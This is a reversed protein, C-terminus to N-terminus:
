PAPLPTRPGASVAATGIGRPDSAAEVRGATKDWVVVQMNGFIADGGTLPSSVPELHYGMLALEEATDADLAGREYFVRDPLYQHHLRPRSVIAQADGGDLYELIGLLVMTIIRSGGPTGLIALGRESQVFTPTMSSLPRKGPEIANAEAGILGYVNPVGPKASFDDMENNLLVGTGDAVFGSGFLYNISLTAAVRNGEGDLISYHTTDAGQGAPVAVPELESSPTAEGPRILDRKGRAHAPSLLREVPVPHFDPDGLYEARDRYAHRMAEILLHARGAAGQEPLDYGSLINLMSGLAVGGSSPPPAAVIRAGGYDIRVPAREKVRYASLDELTWIGGAGAVADVLARAVPGRYFGDRGREALAELTRALAPRRLRHGAPPPEGDVLFVARSAPWRRLEDLRMAAYRHFREDVEFGDRAIRIAPELTQRLPLRGYEEALHALAAPTGPIAAALPGNVSAGPRVDGEADLYLDRGAGLPARERGDLMVATGDGGRQLLWFGGGGLGSGYPEVVGLVAAVAIAADFANGGAELIEIGAQTALPHATALAAGPPRAAAAAGFSLALLWLCLARICTRRPSPVSRDAHISQLNRM